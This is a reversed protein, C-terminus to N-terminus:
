SSSEGTKTQQTYPPRGLTRKAKRWESSGMFRLSLEKFYFQAEKEERLHHSSITAGMLSKSDYGWGRYKNLVNKFRQLASFYKKRKFYFRAISHEKSALMQICKNKKEQGEKYHSSSLPIQNFNFIAQHALHIDRDYTSPLQKYISMGIRFLVYDRKPYTRYMKYFLEYLKQAEEYKWKKYQIDAISLSSEIAYPSYPFKKRLSNYEALAEEYRGDKEMKKGWKFAGEATNQDYTSKHACSSLFFLSTLVSVTLIFFSSFFSSLM